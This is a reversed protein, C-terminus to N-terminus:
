CPAGLFPLIRDRESLEAGSPDPWRIDLYPDDWRIGRSAAPHYRTTMQYFVESNDSLTQFGHAVGKPIFIARHNGASLEVGFWQGYTPSNQRIDAIVDFIRGATVRVLKEEEHPSCQYHMGRVIGRRKNFSISQQTFDANTTRRAFEDRCVIRAFFGREDCNPEIEM